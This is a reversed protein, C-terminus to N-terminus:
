HPIHTVQRRTRVGAHPDAHTPNNPKYNPDIRMEQSEDSSSDEDSQDTSCPASDASEVPLEQESSASITSQTSSDRVPPISFQRRRPIPSNMSWEPESDSSDSQPGPELVADDIHPISYCDELKIDYEEASM